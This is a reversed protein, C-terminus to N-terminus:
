VGKRLHQPALDVIEQVDVAIIHKPQPLSAEPHHARSKDDALNKLLRKTLRGTINDEWIKIIEQSFNDDAIIKAKGKLCYGIFKHEDIASISVKSNNKINRNTLGHYVDILYIEGDTNIKAIAKASNHPFGNRDISSILVFGQNNLFNVIEQSIKKM